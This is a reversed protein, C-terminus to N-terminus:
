VWRGGKGTCLRGTREGGHEESGGIRRLPHVKDSDHDEGPKRGRKETYDELPPQHALGGGAPRMAHAAFLDGHSAVDGHQRPRQLTPLRMTATGADRTPVHEGLTREHHGGYDSGDNRPWMYQDTSRYRGRHRRTYKRYPM